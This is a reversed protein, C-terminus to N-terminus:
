RGGGVERLKVKCGRRGWDEFREKGLRAGQM